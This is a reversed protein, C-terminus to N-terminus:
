EFKVFHHDVTEIEHKINLMNLLQYAIRYYFIYVFNYDTGAVLPNYQTIKM